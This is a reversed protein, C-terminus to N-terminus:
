VQIITELELSMTNSKCYSSETEIALIKVRSTGIPVTCTSHRIHRKQQMKILAM